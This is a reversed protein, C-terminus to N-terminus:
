LMKYIERKKESFSKESINRIMIKAVEAISNTSKKGKAMFFIFYIIGYYKINRNEGYFGNDRFRSSKGSGIYKVKIKM